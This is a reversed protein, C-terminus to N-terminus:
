PTPDSTSPHRPSICRHRGRPTGAASPAAMELTIPSGRGDWHLTVEGVNTAAALLHTHPVAITRKEGTFVTRTTTVTVEGFDVRASVPESEVMEGSPGGVRVRLGGIPVTVGANGAVFQTKSKETKLWAHASKSPWRARSSFWSPKSRTSSVPARERSAFSWNPRWRRLKDLQRRLPLHPHGEAPCGRRPARRRRTSGHGPRPDDSLWSSWVGARKGHCASSNSCARQPIQCTPGARSSLGVLSIACLMLPPPDTPAPPTLCEDPLM